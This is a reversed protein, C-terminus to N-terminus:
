RVVNIETVDGPGLLVGMGEHYKHVAPADAAETVCWQESDNYMWSLGKVGTAPDAQGRSLAQTAQQVMEAPPPGSAKHHDLFQPM